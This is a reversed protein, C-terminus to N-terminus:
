LHDRQAIHIKRHIQQQVWVTSWKFGNCFSILMIPANGQQKNLQLLGYVVGVNIKSYYAVRVVATLGRASMQPKAESQLLLQINRCEKVTRTKWTVVWWTHQICKNPSEHHSLCMTEGEEIHLVLVKVKNKSTTCTKKIFGVELNCIFM